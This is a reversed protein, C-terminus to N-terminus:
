CLKETQVRMFPPIEKEPAGTASIIVKLSYADTGSLWTSLPIGALMDITGTTGTQFNEGKPNTL